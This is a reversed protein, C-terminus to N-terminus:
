MLEQIAAPYFVVDYEPFAHKYIPYCPSCFIILRKANLHKAQEINIGVFERSLSRCEEIAADDRAKIAPRYLMNGCCYEKSLLTYSANKKELLRTFSCLVGSLQSLIQCGSIVVNEAPQDYPLGLEELVNVRDPLTLYGKGSTRIADVMQEDILSHM